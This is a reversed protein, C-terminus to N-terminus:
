LNPDLLNKKASRSLNFQKIKEQLHRRSMGAVTASRSVNNDNLELLKKFYQKEFFEKAKKYSLVTAEDWQDGCQASGCGAGAGTHHVHIFDTSSSQHTSM